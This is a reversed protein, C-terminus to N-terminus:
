SVGLRKTIRRRQSYVIQRIVASQVQFGVPPVRPVGGEVRSITVLEYVATEPLSTPLDTQWLTALTSLLALIPADFSGAAVDDESIGPIYSRGNHKSNPADTVWTIVAAAGAPLAQGVRTGPLGVLNVFGPIEDGASVQDMRIQDLEVDQALVALFDTVYNAQFFEVASQLTDVGSAGATQRYGLAISADGGLLHLHLDLKYLDGVAM